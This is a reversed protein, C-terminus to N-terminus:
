VRGGVPLCAGTIPAADDSLLFAIVAALAQPTVWRSADADPMDARNAPTDIISPMVANVTVGHDKLEEALAETFRAVGAKSAAYAGMGLGAKLSALAGTNIIRGGGHALLLHPLAAQASVVATRLNMAYMRDWTDISGAEITEWSFGGAVNVLANICHSGQMTRLQESVTNFAATAAAPDSLDVDGLRILNAIAPAEAGTPVPARDLLIVRAGREVLLAGVARGLVGFGGTVVVNKGHLQTSM